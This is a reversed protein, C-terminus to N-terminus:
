GAISRPAPEPPQGPGFVAEVSRILRGQLRCGKMHEVPPWWWRHDLKLGPCGLDRCYLVLQAVAVHEESLNPFPEELCLCQHLRRVVSSM